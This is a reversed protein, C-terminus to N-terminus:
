HPDAGQSRGQLRRASQRVPGAGRETAGRASAPLLNGQAISPAMLALLLALAVMARSVM